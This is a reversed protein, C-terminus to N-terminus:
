ENATREPEFLELLDLFQTTDLTELDEENREDLM